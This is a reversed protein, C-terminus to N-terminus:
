LGHSEPMSRLVESVAENMCCASSLAKQTSAALLLPILVWFLWHKSLMYQLGPVARHMCIIESLGRLRGGPPVVKRGIFFSLLNLFVSLTM